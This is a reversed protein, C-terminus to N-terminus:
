SRGRAKKEMEAVMVLIQATALYLHPPIPDGEEVSAHLARALPPSEVVEVGSERALSKIAEARHGQGKVLVRPVETEGDDYALAVAYHTPNTVVVRAEKVAQVSARKSLKRQMQRRRAKIFPDGEQMRMDEVLEQRSMRMKKKFQFIQWGFDLLAVALTAGLLRWGLAVVADAITTGSEAPDMSSLAGLDNMRYRIYVGGVWVLLIARVLIKGLDWAHQLSFLRKLGALPNVADLRPTIAAASVLGRTQMLGSAVGFLAFVAAVLAARWVLPLAATLLDSLHGELGDSSAIRLAGWRALGRCAEILPGRQVFLCSLGAWLAIASVLDVSRAVQGQRRAEELRHPTPDYKKEDSM